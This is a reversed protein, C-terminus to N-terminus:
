ARRFPKWPATITCPTTSSCRAGFVIILVGIATITGEISLAVLRMPAIDWVAWAILAGVLWSLPMARTSPWRLGAMRILALLIPIFACLALFGISM